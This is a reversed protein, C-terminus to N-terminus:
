REWWWSFGAVTLIFQSLRHEM